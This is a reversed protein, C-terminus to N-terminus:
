WTEEGELAAMAPEPLRTGLMAPEPLRTGLMAPEPLRTGLLAQLQGLLEAQNERRARRRSVFGFRCALVGDARMRRRWAASWCALAVVSVLMLASGTALNVQDARAARGGGGFAMAAVALWGGGCLGLGAVCLGSLYRAMM